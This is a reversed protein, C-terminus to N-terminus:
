TLNRRQHFDCGARSLTMFEHQLCWPRYKDEIRWQMHACQLCQRSEDPESAIWNVALKVAQITSM